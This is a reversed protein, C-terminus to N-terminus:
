LRMVYNRAEGMGPRQEFFLADGNRRDRKRARVSNEM